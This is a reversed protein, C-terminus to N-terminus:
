KGGTAWFAISIVLAAFGFVGLAVYLKLRPSRAAAAYARSFHQQVRIAERDAGPAIPLRVLKHWDPGDPNTMTEDFEMWGAHIKVAVNRGVPCFEDGVAVANEGIVVKVAGDSSRATTATGVRALNLENTGGASEELSRYLEMFERWAEASLTWSAIVGEGRRMRRLRRADFTRMVALVLAFPGVTFGALGLVMQLNLRRGEDPLAFAIWIALVAAAFTM